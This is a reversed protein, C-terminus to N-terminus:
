RGNDASFSGMFTSDLNDLADSFSLTGSRNGIATKTEAAFVYFSASYNWDQAIAAGGSFLAAAVAISRVVTKM